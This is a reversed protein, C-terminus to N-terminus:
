AARTGGDNLIYAAVGLCILAALVLFYALRVIRGLGPAAGPLWGPTLLMHHLGRIWVLAGIVLVLKGLWGPLMPLVMAVAVGVVAMVLPVEMAYGLQNGSPRLGTPARRLKLGRCRTPMEQDYVM